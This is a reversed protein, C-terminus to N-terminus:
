KSEAYATTVGNDNDKLCEDESKKIRMAKNDITVKMSRDTAILIDQM